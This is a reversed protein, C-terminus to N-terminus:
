KASSLYKERYLKGLDHSPNQQLLENLLKKGEAVEGLEILLAALNAKADYNEPNLALAQQFNNKAQAYSKGQVLRNAKMYLFISHEHRTFKDVPMFSEFQVAKATQGTYLLAIYTNLFTQPLAEISNGKRGLNLATGLAELAEKFKREKIYLKGLEAWVREKKPSMQVENQYFQIPHLWQQNRAYSLSALSFILAFILITFISLNAANKKRMDLLYCLVYATLISLGLNPLYTRHEFVLDKIPIIGSEVSHAIYYFLVAFTVIPNTKYFIFAVIILLLHAFFAAIVPFNFFGQQLSIDYDLHLGLPLFYLKIYHWIVLMQTSFYQLRSIDKVDQTHTYQDIVELNIGFAYHFITAILLLLLLGSGLWLLLKQKSLQQFFLLEIALLSIPITVTNEKSLLALLLFIATLVFYTTKKSNRAFTYSALTAIYFFAALSAHRQIIYSVAQTQLPHLAFLLAALFPLFVVFASSQINDKNGISVAALFRVLFYVACGSLIHILLNFVHYGFVDTQHISYNTALSLYGVFRMIQYNRHEFLNAFSHVTPNEVISYHDDLYFPISFSNIYSLTTVVILLLLQIKPNKLKELAHSFNFDKNETEHVKYGETLV